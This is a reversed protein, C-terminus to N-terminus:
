DMLAAQNDYPFLESEIQLPQLASLAKDM